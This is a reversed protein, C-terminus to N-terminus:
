QYKRLQLKIEVPYFTSTKCKSTQKIHKRHNNWLRPNNAYTTQNKGDSLKLNQSSSSIKGISVVPRARVSAMKVLCHSHWKGVLKLAFIIGNILSRSLAEGEEVSILKRAKTNFFTRHLKGPYRNKSFLRSFKFQFTTRTTMRKRLDLNFLM